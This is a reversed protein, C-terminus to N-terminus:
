NTTAGIGAEAYSAGCLACLGAAFISHPCVGVQITQLLIRVEEIAKITIPYPAKEDILVALKITALNLDVAKRKLELQKLAQDKFSM